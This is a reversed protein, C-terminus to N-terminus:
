NIELYLKIWLWQNSLAYPFGAVRNLMNGKENKIVSDLHKWHLLRCYISTLIMWLMIQQIANPISLRSFINKLTMIDLVTAYELSLILMISWSVYICFITTSMQAPCKVFHYFYTTNLQLCKLSSPDANRKKHSQTTEVFMVKWLM